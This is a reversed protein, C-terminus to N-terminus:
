QTLKEMGMHPEDMEDQSSFRYDKRVHGVPDEEYGVETSIDGDDNRFKPHSLFNSLAYFALICFIAFTYFAVIWFNLSMKPM